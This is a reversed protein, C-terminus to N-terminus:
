ILTDISDVARIVLFNSFHVYVLFIEVNNQKKM